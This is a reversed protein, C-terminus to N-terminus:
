GFDDDLSLMADLECIDRALMVADDQGMTLLTNQYAGDFPGTAKSTAREFISRWETLRDGQFDRESVAGMSIFADVLRQQIADPSTALTHVANSLKERAYSADM